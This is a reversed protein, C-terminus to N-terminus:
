KLIKMLRKRRRGRAEREKRKREGRYHINYDNKGDAEIIKEMFVRRSEFGRDFAKRPIGSIAQKISALLGPVSNEHLMTEEIQELGDDDAVQLESEDLLDCVHPVFGLTANTKLKTLKM